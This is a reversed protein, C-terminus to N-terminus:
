HRARTPTTTSARQRADAYTESMRGCLSVSQRSSDASIAPSSPAGSIASRGDANGSGIYAYALAWGQSVLPCINYGSSSTVVDSQPRVASSPGARRALRARGYARKLPARSRRHRLNVEYLDTSLLSSATSLSVFLSAVILHALMEVGFASLILAHGPLQARVRRLCGIPRLSPNLLNTSCRHAPGIRCTQVSQRWAAKSLCLAPATRLQSHADVALRQDPSRSQRMSRWGRSSRRRQGCKLARRTRGSGRM